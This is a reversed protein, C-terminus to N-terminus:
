NTEKQIDSIKQAFYSSKEPFKLSLKKYVSISREKQGQKYYILALTESVIDDKELSSDASFDEGFEPKDKSVKITPEEMLFKDILQSVSPKKAEQEQLIPPKELLEEVVFMQVTSVPKSKEKVELSVSAEGRESSIEALRKNVIALLEEKSLQKHDQITESSKINETKIVPKRESIHEKESLYKQLKKMDSAYVSAMNVHKEYALKDFNEINKSLIIHATHCYPYFKTVRELFSLTNGDLSNPNNIIGTYKSKEM